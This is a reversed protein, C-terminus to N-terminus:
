EIARVGRRECGVRNVRREVIRVRGRQHSDCTQLVSGSPCLLLAAPSSPADPIAGTKTRPARDYVTSRREGATMKALVAASAGGRRVEAKLRAGAAFVPAIRTM